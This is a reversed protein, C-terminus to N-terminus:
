REKIKIVSLDNVDVCETHSATRHETQELFLHLVHEEDDEGHFGEQLDQSVAQHHVGAGVDAVAPVQKVEDNDDDPLFACSGVFM